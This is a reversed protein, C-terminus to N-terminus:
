VRTASPSSNIRKKQGHSKRAVKLTAGLHDHVWRHFHSYSYTLAHETRAWQWLTRYGREGQPQALRARIAEQVATPLGIGGQHPRGVPLPARLLGALGGQVYDALWRSVTERNRGLQRALASRSQVTESAVLWLAHLRERRREDREVRRLELLEAASEVVRPWPVFPM